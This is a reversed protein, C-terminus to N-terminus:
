LCSRDTSPLLLTFTTIKSHSQVQIEANLREALKKVIALGLGTGEEYWAQTDSVRYFPEFNQNLQEPPIQAGTNCVQLVITSARCEARLEIEAGAPSYKCANNLLEALLRRLSATDLTLNPLDPSVCLKLYQQKAEARVRFPTAVEQLWDQWYLTELRKSDIGAQLRQLDLLDNVLMMERHCEEELIQVYEQWNEQGYPSKLLDLATQMNAVPARLEHTATRLFDEKFFDSQQLVEVQQQLQGTKRIRDYIATTCGTLGLLALPTVLPPLYNVQFLLLSAMGWTCCLGVTGLTQRVIGREAIMWSCLPGVGLVGLLLWLSPIPRLLNQQLVNQILTAHLDVNSAPPTQDFPTILPDFGTATVGLLIIKDQFEQPDIRGQIVEAFSYHQAAQIPGFWNLWLPQQLDPLPVNERVLRYAQIAAIGLAPQSQLLPTVSRVIGDSDSRVLIHGTAIANEQLAPVPLLPKGEADWASALVVRGHRAIAEALLVDDSSAESLLLDIVLVNAESQKLRDLLEVYQQRPWPFRGLQQISQDDIEIVVVRSDTPRSGRLQFLLRYGIQELPQFWGLKLLGAIVLAALLGPLLRGHSKCSKSLIWTM